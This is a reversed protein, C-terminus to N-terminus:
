GPRESLASSVAQRSGSIKTAAQHPAPSRTGKSFIMGSRRHCCVMAAREPLTNQIGSSNRFVGAGVRSCPRSESAQAMWGSINGRALPIRWIVATGGEVAWLNGTQTVMEGHRDGGSDFLYPVFNSFQRLGRRSGFVQHLAHALQ